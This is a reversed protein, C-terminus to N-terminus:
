FGHGKKAAAVRERYRRTREAAKIRRAECIPCVPGALRERVFAASAKVREAEPLENIAKVDPLAMM